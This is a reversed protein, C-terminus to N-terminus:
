RAEGSGAPAAEIVDFTVAGRVPEGDGAPKLEHEYTYSGPDLLSTDVEDTLRVCDGAPEVMPDPFRFIPKRDRAVYRVFFRDPDAAAAGCLWSVIELLRGREVARDGTPVARTTAEVRRGAKGEAPEGMLPLDSAFVSRGSTFLIPGAAAEGGAEPLAVEASAGGYVDLDKNRAFARVRYLGPRLDGLKREYVLVGRAGGGQAKRVEAGTLMEWSKGSAEHDLLAGVDLRAAEGEAVPLLGLAEIEIAVEVTMEWRRRAVVGPVLSVSMELDTASTPNSLVVQAKRMLRDPENLHIVRYSNSIRRGGAKVNAAYVGTKAEDLPKFALRYVCQCGRGAEKMVGGLDSLSRSYRGGTFDALNLGMTVAEDAVGSDSVADGLQIPYLSARSANATAGVKEMLRFHDGVPTIDMPGFPYFEVPAPVGNQHLLIVAKRGPLDQLRTLYLELAKLSRAGHRYEATANVDCIPCCPVCTQHPKCQAPVNAECAGICDWCEDIREYFDEPFREIFDHDEQAVHLAELLVEQDDTFGTLERIGPRTTYAVLKVRDGPRVEEEVWKEAARIARSRGEQQLQSFDLYLVIWVPEAASREQDPAAGAAGGPPRSSVDAATSQAALDGREDSCACLDDVSYLPWLRSGLKLTFDDMQLGRVPRGKRDTVAVDLLILTVGAKEILETRIPAPPRPTQANPDSGSIEQSQTPAQGLLMSVALVVPAQFRLM